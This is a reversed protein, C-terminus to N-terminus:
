TGPDTRLAPDLRQGPYGPTLDHVPEAPRTPVTPLLSRATQAGDIRDGARATRGLRTGLADCQKGALKWAEAASRSGPASTSVREGTTALTALYAAPTRTSM